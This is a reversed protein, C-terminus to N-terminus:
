NNFNARRSNEGFGRVRKKTKLM